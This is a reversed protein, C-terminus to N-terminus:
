RAAVFQWSLAIVGRAGARAIASNAARAPSRQAIRRPDIRPVATARRATMGALSGHLAGITTSLSASDAIRVRLDQVAIRAITRSSRVM